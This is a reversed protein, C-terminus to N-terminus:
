SSSFSPPSEPFRAAIFEEVNLPQEVMALEYALRMIQPPEVYTEALVDAQALIERTPGDLLVRGEAMVLVRGAHEAVFDIDHSIMIVTKGQERLGDVVRGVLEVGLFDQGTTPEDFVVIPTDMALISAITVLKRQGPTLDYPHERAFESIGLSDLADQAKTDVQASDWGLNHLGFKVEEIVSSKFLQDDPNQFVYGVRAALQAVSKSRTEWDGVRIEGQTPKLLGNLHKVLTTKGAGNQGVIAISEGSDIKFTVGNVAQVGSPYRYSLSRIQLDMHQPSAKWRAM